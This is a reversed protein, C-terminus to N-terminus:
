VQMLLQFPDMLDKTNINNTNISNITNTNNININSINNISHIYKISINLNNNISLSNSNGHFGMATTQRLMSSEPWLLLGANIVFFIRIRM